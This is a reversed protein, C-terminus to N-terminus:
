SQDNSPDIISKVIEAGCMARLTKIDDELMALITEVTIGPTLAIKNRYAILLDAKQNIVRADLGDTINKLEGLEESLTDNEAMLKHNERTLREITDMYQRAATIHASRLADVRRNIQDVRTKYTPANEWLENNVVHYPYLMEAEQELDAPLEEDLWEFSHNKGVAGAYEHWRWQGGGVTEFYYRGGGSDGDKIFYYGDVQPKDNQLRWRM